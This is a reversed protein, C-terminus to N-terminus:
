LFACIYYCIIYRTVISKQTLFPCGIGFKLDLMKLIISPPCGASEYLQLHFCFEHFLLIIKKRLNFMILCTMRYVDANMYMINFM